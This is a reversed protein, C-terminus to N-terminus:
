DYIEGDRYRAWATEFWADAGPIPRRPVWRHAVLPRDAGDSAAVPAVTTELVKERFTTDEPAIRWETGLTGHLPIGTPDLVIASGRSGVGSEVAYAIAELYITHAFCLQRNRLAERAEPPGQYACGVRALREWQAWAESLAERLTAASRVHAAARTMRKQFASREVQWSTSAHACRALWARLDCLGARAASYV